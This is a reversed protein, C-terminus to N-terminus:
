QIIIVLISERIKMDANEDDFGDVKPQKNEVKDHSALVINQQSTATSFDAAKIEDISASALKRLLNELTEDSDELNEQLNDGSVDEVNQAQTNELEKKLQQLMEIRQRLEKILM